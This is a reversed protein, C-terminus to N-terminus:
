RQILHGFYRLKLELCITPPFTSFTVFKIKQTGFDSHIIVVAVFNFSM